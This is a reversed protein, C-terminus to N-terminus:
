AHSALGALPVEPAGVVSVVCLWELIEGDVGVLPLARSYVREDGGSAGGRHHCEFVDGSAIADQLALSVRSRDDPHVFCDVWGGSGRPTRGGAESETLDCWETWDANVRFVAAPAATPEIAPHRLRLRSDPIARALAAVRIYESISLGERAAGARVLEWVSAEFTITTTKVDPKSLSGRRSRRGSLYCM